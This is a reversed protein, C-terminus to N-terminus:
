FSYLQVSMAAPHTDAFKLLNVANVLLSEDDGLQCDLSIDMETDMAANLSAQSTDGTENDLELDKCEGM